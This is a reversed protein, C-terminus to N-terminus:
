RYDFAQSKVAEQLGFESKGTAWGSLVRQYIPEKAGESRDYDEFVPQRKTLSPVICILSLTRPAGQEGNGTAALNGTKTVRRTTTTRARTRRKERRGEGGRGEQGQRVRRVPRRLLLLLLPLMLIQPPLRHYRCRNRKRQQEGCGANPAGAGDHFGHLRQADRARGRSQRQRRRLPACWLCRRTRTPLPSM